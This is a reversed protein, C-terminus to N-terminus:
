NKHCYIVHWPCKCIQQMIISSTHLKCKRMKFNQFSMFSWGFLWDASYGGFLCMYSWLLFVFLHVSLVELKLFNRLCSHCVHDKRFAVLVNESSAIYFNRRPICLVITWRSLDYKCNPPRFALIYGTCVIHNYGWRPDIQVPRYPLSFIENTKTMCWCAQLGHQRQPRTYARHRPPVRVQFLAAFLTHMCM